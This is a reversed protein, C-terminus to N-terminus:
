ISMNEKELKLRVKYKKGYREYEYDEYYRHIKSTFSDRAAIYVEKKSKYAESGYYEESYITYLWQVNSKEEFYNKLGDYYFKTCKEKWKDLFELIASVNRSNVKQEAVSLEIKYDELSKKASELDKLTWRLDDETYYYPNKKWGTVEAEHIRSLKKELKEIEKEKGEIKKQLFEVTAM